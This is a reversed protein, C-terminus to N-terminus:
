VMLPYNRLRSLTQNITLALKPLVDYARVGCIGENNCRSYDFSYRTIMLVTHWPPKQCITFVVLNFNWPAGTSRLENAVGPLPNPMATFKLGMSQMYRGIEKISGQVKTLADEFRKIENNNFVTDKLIMRCYVWSAKPHNMGFRTASVYFPCKTSWISRPCM